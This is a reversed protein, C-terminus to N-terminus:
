LVNTLDHHQIRGSASRCARLHIESSVPGWVLCAGELGLDNRIPSHSRGEELGTVAQPNAGLLPWAAGVPGVRACTVVVIAPYLSLQRVAGSLLWSWVSATPSPCLPSPFLQPERTGLAAGDPGCLTALVMISCATKSVHLVLPCLKPHGSCSSLSPFDWFLSLWLVERTACHNLTQKGICPVRTRARTQSSGVHWLAVLGM